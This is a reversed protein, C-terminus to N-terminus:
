KGNEPKPDVEEVVPKQEVKIEPPPSQPVVAQMRIPFNVPLIISITLHDIWRGESEVYHSSPIQNISASLNPPCQRMFNNFEQIVTKPEGSFYFMQQFTMHTPTPQSHGNGGRRNIKKSM